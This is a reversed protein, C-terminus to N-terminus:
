AGDLGARGHQMMWGEPDKLYALSDALSLQHEREIRSLFEFFNKEMPNQCARSLDAYLLAGKAEFEVAKELAKVDDDDHNGFSGDKAVMDELLQRVDTDRVQLAVDKPWKGESILKDHLQAIRTMHEKEEDALKYFMESALPNNSRKAENKYFEMETKENELALEISAMYDMIKRKRRNLNFHRL